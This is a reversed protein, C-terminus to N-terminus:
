STHEELTKIGNGTLKYWHGKPTASGREILGFGLLLAFTKTGQKSRSIHIEGRESGRIKELFKRQRKDPFM